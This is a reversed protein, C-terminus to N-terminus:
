TGLLTRYVIVTYSAEWGRVASADTGSPIRYNLLFIHCDVLQRLKAVVLNVIISMGPSNKLASWDALSVRNDELPVGALALIWRIPEGLARFDFYTLKYEPM